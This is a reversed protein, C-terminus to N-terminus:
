GDILRRVKQLRVDAPEHSDLTGFFRGDATALQVGATHEMEYSEGDGAKKYFVYRAKTLDRLQQDTGTLALIREDFYAVYEKLIAPTDRAPDVSVFVVNLKDGDQGLENLVQAMEALATPCVDPCHTFGFFWASPKGLLDQETVARSNQDTLQFPTAYPKAEAVTQQAGRGYWAIALVVALVAVLTWATWRVIRLASRSTSNM